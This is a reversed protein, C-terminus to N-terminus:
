APPPPGIGLLQKAKLYLKFPLRSQIREVVAALENRDGSIYALQGGLERVLRRHSELEAELDEVAPGGRVGELEATMARVERELRGLAGETQHGRLGLQVRDVSGLQVLEDLIADPDSANVVGQLQAEASRFRELGDRDITQGCWAGLSIALHDISTTPSWPHDTGSVVLTRALWWLARTVVLAADVAEPVEWEDDIFHLEGDEDVFNDLAVDVFSAPLVRTADSPLFPHPAVGGDWDRELAALHDRWRRLTQRMADHDEAEAAWLFQQELTPGRRYPREATIQQRVFAAEPLGEDPHLREQRAVLREGDDVV